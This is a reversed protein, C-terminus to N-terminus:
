SGAVQESVGLKVKVKHSNKILSVWDLIEHCIPCEGKIPILKGDPKPFNDYTCKLHAKFNCNKKYCFVVRPKLNADDEIYNFNGCCYDCALDGYTLKNKSKEYYDKVVKIYPTYFNFLLRMNTNARQLVERNSEGAQEVDILELDEEPREVTSAEPHEVFVNEEDIDNPLKYKNADWIKLTDKNFMRVKLNMPKFHETHLLIRAGAVKYHIGRSNKTFQSQSQTQKQSSNKSQSKNPSPTKELCKDPWEKVFRSQYVHQWAHEFQLAASKSPFGYVILIMEWPRTGLKKTRYAGGRSLDGNHQRLRRVPNPSSGIYFSQQKPLSRLLYCCYFDVGLNNANSNIGEQTAM